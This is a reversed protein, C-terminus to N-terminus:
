KTRLTFCLGIGTEAAQHHRRHSGILCMQTTQHPDHIGQDQGWGVGLPTQIAMQSAPDVVMDPKEQKRLLYLKKMRILTIQRFGKMAEQEEQFREQLFIFLSLQLQPWVRELCPSSFCVESSSTSYLELKQLM